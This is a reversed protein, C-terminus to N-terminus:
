PADTLRHYAATASRGLAVTGNVVETYRDGAIVLGDPTAMDAICGDVQRDTLAAPTWDIEAIATSQASNLAQETISPCPAAFCRLGNDWVQVFPGSSPSEAEAVWAETIIFRGLEPRPTTQNTRAFRGQVIAYVGESLPQTCADLLKTQQNVSLSARSWDLVPTYCTGARTGDHCTTTTRNLREVFWGGCAPSACKRQDAAIAFYTYADATVVDQDESGAPVLDDASSWACGTLGAIV